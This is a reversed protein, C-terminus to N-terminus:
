ARGLTSGTATTLSSVTVQGHAEALYRLLVIVRVDTRGLAVDLRGGPYIDVRNDRLLM